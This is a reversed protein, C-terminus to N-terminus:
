RHFTPIDVGTIWFDKFISRHYDANVDKLDCCFFKTVLDIGQQVPRKGRTKPPPLSSHSLLSEIPDEKWGRGFQGNRKEKSHVGPRAEVHTWSTTADDSGYCRPCPTLRSGLTFDANDM